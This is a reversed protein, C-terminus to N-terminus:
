FLPPARPLIPSPAASRASVRLTPFADRHHATESSALYSSTSGEGNVELTRCFQCLYEDHIVSHFGASESEVHTENERAAAEVAADVLPLAVLVLMYILSVSAHGCRKLKGYTEALRIM